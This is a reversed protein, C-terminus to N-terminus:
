VFVKPIGRFFKSTHLDRWACALTEFQRQTCLPHDVSRVEIGHRVCSAIPFCGSQDIHSDIALGHQERGVTLEGELMSM